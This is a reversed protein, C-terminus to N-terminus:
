NKALNLIFLFCNKRGGGCNERLNTTLYYYLKKKKFIYLFYFPIKKGCVHWKKKDSFQKKKKWRWM